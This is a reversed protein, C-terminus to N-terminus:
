ATKYDKPKRNIYFVPVVMGVLGPIYYFILINKTSNFSSNGVVILKDLSTTLNLIYALFLASSISIVIFISDNILVKLEELLNFRVM